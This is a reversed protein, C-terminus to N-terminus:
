SGGTMATDLSTWYTGDLMAALAARHMIMDDLDDPRQAQGFAIARLQIRVMIIAHQLAAYATYFDLDSPLHGTIEAYDDNVDARRLLDPLGPLGAAHAIDEFFRHLFIMWGLDLERPGLSAMEWDLLAVPVFDRYIINGIRADGWSLVPESEAPWHERLWRFGREILPVGPGGARTWEYYEYTHRVHAQLATEGPRRRDLFPFDAPVAAHVLALQEITKHQLKGREAPSAETLWSGFNYPMVDPPITGDVHHMVFFPAGMAAADHECWLVPPVTPRHLQTRLRQLTLFQCRMDYHPFVPSAHPQPAIRVVLRHPEGDWGAQVVITESSMGNASPVSAEAVGAGPQRDRLWREFDARLQEPDRQSASPRAQETSTYETM